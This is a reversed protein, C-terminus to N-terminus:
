PPITWGVFPSHMVGVVRGVGSASTIPFGQLNNLRPEIGLNARLGPYRLKSQPQPDIKYVKMLVRSFVTYV